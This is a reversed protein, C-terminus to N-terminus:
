LAILLVVAALGGALCAAVGVAMLWQKPRARFVISMLSPRSPQEDSMGFGVGHRARVFASKKAM